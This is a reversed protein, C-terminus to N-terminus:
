KAQSEMAPYGATAPQRTRSPLVRRMIEPALQDIPFQGWVNGIPQMRVKMVEEQDRDDAGESPM